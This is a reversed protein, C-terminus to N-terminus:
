NFDVYYFWIIGFSLHQFFCTKACDGFVNPRLGNKPNQNLILLHCLYRIIKNHYLIKNWTTTFQSLTESGNLASYVKGMKFSVPNPLNYPTARPAIINLITPSMNYFMKYMEIALAQLNKHHTSVSNGKELLEKFSYIKDGYKIRFARELWVNIKKGLRKSHFMRVLPRHGFQSTIFAKMIIM